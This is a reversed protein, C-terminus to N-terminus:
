LPLRHKNIFTAKIPCESTNNLIFKVLNLASNKNYCIETKKVLFLGIKKRIQLLKGYLKQHPRLTASIDYPNGSKLLEWNCLNAFFIRCSVCVTNWFIAKTYSIEGYLAKSLLMVQLILKSVRM